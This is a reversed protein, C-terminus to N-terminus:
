AYAAEYDYDEDNYDYDDGMEEDWEEWDDYAMEVDQAPTPSKPASPRFQNVTDQIAPLAYTQVGDFVALAILVLGIQSSYRGVVPLNGGWQAIGLGTAAKIGIRVPASLSTPLLKGSIFDFVAVGLGAFLATTLLSGFGERLPNRTARYKYIVKPMAPNRRAAKRKVITTKRPKKNSYARPKPNRKTVVKGGSVSLARQSPNKVLATKMKDKRM